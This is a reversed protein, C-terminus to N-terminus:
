VVEQQMNSIIHGQIRLRVVVQSIDHNIRILKVSYQRQIYQLIYARYAWDLGTLFASIYLIYSRGQRVLKGYVLLTTIHTVDQYVPLDQSGVLCSANLIAAREFNCLNKNRLQKDRNTIIYYANNFLDKVARNNTLCIRINVLSLYNCFM